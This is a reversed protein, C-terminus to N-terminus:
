KLNVGAILGFEQLLWLIVFLIAIVYIVKKIIADMPILNILYLVVGVIILMILITIMFRLYSFFIGFLLFLNPNFTNYHM